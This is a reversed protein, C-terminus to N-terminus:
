ETEKFITLKEQFYILKTIVTNIINVSLDLHPSKYNDIGNVKGVCLM